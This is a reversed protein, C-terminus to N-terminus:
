VGCEFEISNFLVDGSIPVLRYKGTTYDCEDVGYKSNKITIEVKSNKPINSPLEFELCTKTIEGSADLEYVRVMPKGTPYGGTNWLNFVLNTAGCWKEIVTLYTYVGEPTPVPTPKVCEEDKICKNMPECWEYGRGTDCGHEDIGGGAQGGPPEDTIEWNDLYVQIQEGALAFHVTFCGTCGATDVRTLTLGDQSGLHEVATKAAARDDDGTIEWTRLCVGLESDWSYGAPGLCGHEDTEGGIPQEGGGPQGNGAPAEQVCGVALILMILLAIKKM